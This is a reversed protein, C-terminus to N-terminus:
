QYQLKCAMRRGPSSSHRNPTDDAICTDGVSSDGSACVTHSVKSRIIRSSIVQAGAIYLGTSVESATKIRQSILQTEPVFLVALCCVEM